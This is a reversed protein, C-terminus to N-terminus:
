PWCSGGFGVRGLFVWVEGTGGVSVPMDSKKNKVLGGEQARSSNFYQVVAHCPRRM